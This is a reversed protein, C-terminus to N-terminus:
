DGTRINKIVYFTISFAVIAIIFSSIIAGVVSGFLINALVGILAWTSSALDQLNIQIANGSKDAGSVSFEPNYNASLNSNINANEILEGNTYINTFNQNLAEIDEYGDFIEGRGENNALSIYFTLSGLIVIGILLSNILFSTLNREAM